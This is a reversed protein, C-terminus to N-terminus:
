RDTESALQEYVVTFRDVETQWSDRRAALDSLERGIGARRAAAEQALDERGDELAQSAQRWYGPM